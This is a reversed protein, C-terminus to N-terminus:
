LSFGTGFCIHSFDINKGSEITAVSAIVLFPTTKGVFEYM